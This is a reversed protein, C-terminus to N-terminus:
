LMWQSSSNRARPAMSCHYPYPPDRKSLNEAVMKGILFEKEVFLPRARAPKILAAMREHRTGDNRRFLFAGHLFHHVTASFESLKYNLDNLVRRSPQVCLASAM